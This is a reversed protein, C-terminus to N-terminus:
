AATLGFDITADFKIDCIAADLKIADLGLARHVYSPTPAVSFEPMSYPQLGLIQQKVLQKNSKM